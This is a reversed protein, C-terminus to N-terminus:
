RHLASAENSVPSDSGRLRLLAPFFLADSCFITRYRSLIMSCRLLILGCVFIHGQLPLFHCHLAFFDDQLAFFHYHLTPFDNQLASFDYHLMSFHSQLTPFDNQLAGFYSRM